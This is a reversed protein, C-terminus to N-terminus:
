PRSSAAAGSSEGTANASSSPPAPPAAAAEGLIAKLYPNGKGTRGARNEPRSQITRLSLKAWSVLHGPTPFRSMDLGIEAIIGQATARRHKPHSGATSAVSDNVAARGGSGNATANAMM